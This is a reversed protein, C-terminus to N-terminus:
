AASQGRNALPRKFTDNASWGLTNLRNSATNPKLGYVECAEAVTMTRGDVEVLRNTRKNREQEARPVWKCNDKTYPGNNDKREITHGNPRTGMDALFAEFSGMWEPCVSIGRAGYNVYDQRDPNTCRRRMDVWSQYTPTHTLGHTTVAAAQAASMNEKRTCGCGTSRGSNLDWRVVEREVGCDCRCLWKRGEARLVTWIGFRMNVTM